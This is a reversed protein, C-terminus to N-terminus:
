FRVTIRSVEREYRADLEDVTLICQSDIAM